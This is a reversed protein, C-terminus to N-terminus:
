SRIELAVVGFVGVEAGKTAPPLSLAITLTNTFPLPLPLPFEWSTKTEDFRGIVCENLRAEGVGRVGTLALVVSTAEDLNTPSHFVRTLEFRGSRGQVIQPWDDPHRFTMPEGEPRGDPDLGVFRWPGRLRIRHHDFSETM